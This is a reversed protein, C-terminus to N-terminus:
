LAECGRTSVQYAALLSRSVKGTPFSPSAQLSGGTECMVVIPKGGSAAQLDSLFTPNPEM